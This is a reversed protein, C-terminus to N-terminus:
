KKANEEEWFEESVQVKEEHCFLAVDAVCISRTKAFIGKYNM